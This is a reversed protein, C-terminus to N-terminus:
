KYVQLKYNKLISINMFNLEWLSIISLVQTTIVAGVLRYYWKVMECSLWGHGSLNDSVIPSNFRVCFDM